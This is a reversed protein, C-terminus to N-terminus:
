KDVGMKEGIKKVTDAMDSMASNGARQATVGAGGPTFSNRLSQAMASAGSYKGAVSAAKGVKSGMSMAAKAFGAGKANSNAWANM